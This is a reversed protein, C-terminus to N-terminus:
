ASQASCGTPSNASLVRPAPVSEPFVTWQLDGGARKVAERWVGIIALYHLQDHPPRQRAHRHQTHESDGQQWGFVDM